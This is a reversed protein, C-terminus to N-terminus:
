GTTHACTSAKLVIESSCPQRTVIYVSYVLVWCVLNAIFVCNVTSLTEFSLVCKDAMPKM